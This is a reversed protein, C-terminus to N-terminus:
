PPNAFFKINVILGLKINLIFFGKSNAIFPRPKKRGTYGRLLVARFHPTDMKEPSFANSIPTEPRRVFGGEFYKSVCESASMQLTQYAPLFAAKV